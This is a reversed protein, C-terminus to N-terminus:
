ITFLLVMNHKLMISHFKSHTWYGIPLTLKIQFRFWYHIRVAFGLIINYKTQQCVTGEGQHSNLTKNETALNYSPPTGEQTLGQEYISTNDSIKEPIINCTWAHVILIYFQFIFHLITILICTNNTKNRQLINKIQAM